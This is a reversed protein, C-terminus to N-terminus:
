WTEVEHGNTKNQQEKAIRLLKRRNKHLLILELETTRSIHVKVCVMQKLTKTKNWQVNRREDDDASCLLLLLACMFEDTKHKPEKFKRNRQMTDKGLQLETFERDALLKKTRAVNYRNSFPLCRLVKAKQSVGTWLSIWPFQLRWNM